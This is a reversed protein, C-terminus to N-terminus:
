EDISDDSYDDHSPFSGYKGNERAVFGIGKSADLSKQGSDFNIPYSHISPRDESCKKLNALLSKVKYRVSITVSKQSSLTKNNVVNVEIVEVNGRGQTWENVRLEIDHEQVQSNSTVNIMEAM